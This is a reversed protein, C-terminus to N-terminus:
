EWFSRRQWEGDNKDWFSDHQWSKKASKRKKKAQKKTPVLRKTEFLEAVKM